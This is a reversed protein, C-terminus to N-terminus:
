QERGPPLVPTANADFLQRGILMELEAFTKGQEADLVFLEQQYRNVTMQNDLLTMLNVQGVRYAALSSGVAAQAQPIITSRYLLGLNRARVVTAYREAVLARTQARMSQLEARVMANMAQSEERMKLQRSRAFIPLTAGLMLSGMRERQMVGAREGYQIGIQLDPWIEKAALKTAADAARLDARGARIMPRNQDALAMLSDLTPLTAPFKPLQPSALASDPARDLLGAIMATAAVRMTRMRVIDESMKASEVRAKLVDSQRGDGVAYMTQATSAINELLRQTTIAVVLSRDAQFLDYFAMAVRSRVEWRVDAVREGAADAQASSVRGALTLKGAVPVMQMLQLQTMGLPDMPALSPLSRNMLGLQLQPDPPRKTGPVRAATARAIARAATIQPNRQEVIDYLTGLRLATTDDQASPVHTAITTAIQAATAPAPSATSVVTCLAVLIIRSGRAKRQRLRSISSRISARQVM